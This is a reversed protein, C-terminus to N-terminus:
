NKAQLLALTRISCSTTRDIWRELCLIKLVCNLSSTRKCLVLFVIIFFSIPM